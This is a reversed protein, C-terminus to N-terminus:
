KKQEHKNRQDETKQLSKYHHHNKNFKKICQKNLIINLNTRKHM